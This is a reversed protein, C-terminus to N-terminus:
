HARWLGRRDAGRALISRAIPDELPLQHVRWSAPRPAGVLPFFLVKRALGGGIGDPDNPVNRFWLRANDLSVEGCGGLARGPGGPGPRQGAPQCAGEM